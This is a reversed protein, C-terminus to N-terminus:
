QYFCIDGGNAGKAPIALTPEDEDISLLFAVLQARKTADLTFVQAIASQHHGKFLTDDFLEELTRANGAHFYPAGVQMGLLSPPNFGRGNDANGQAVAAMDQRVELVGVAAPSSNFTGVPRLICQIQEAGPPAGFRMRSDTMANAPPVNIPWLAQPFGNLATNWSINSLSTAAMDATAANPIDGPTYFRKSITWKAGSHCGVCNAAAASSFLMRGADVDAQTLNTPKRPSRISRSYAGIEKWDNLASHPHAGAGMPDATDNSSGQLGQQPPVQAATDIRADAADVIAGKGGSVGRTNGEFDAIEDFIATWNFIRQDTPDKSAYSGDLSTSQRPGRAFYWTVNDSLGDIHCAACSGWAEGNLSWRGLGTTFFRKGRLVADEPTGAAPLASAQLIRYDGASGAISQTNLAVATIDRSGENAVFAVANTNGTAVGIPLRIVKDMADTRMDIFKNTASGVSMLQGNGVVLRFAGDAGMSSLYGFNNFFGIDTPLLPMRTSMIDAFRKDLSITGTATGTALDIITLAPHTTAKVDTANPQCKLSVADCVGGVMGCDAAQTLITCAGGANKGAFVGLPGKPSACTSTVYAFTGNITISSVQNPFCGVVGGNHDPFGTDMVPPLDIMSATGDAASIAYVIGKKNTDATMATEPGTRQAFWETVYIKEDTDDANGNNTIALARPHALAPRATVTGLLGSAALTANLDITSKVTMTAADIVSVTGNVWNAVYLTTNNPSLVIGTPESGVSVSAGLKPAATSIGEIVVVKQEKRLAVYARNGCADLAVQWPESTKDAGVTLEAVKTMAPASGSYDVSAITVTGVDRNVSVLHSDDATIAIASGRATGTATKNCLMSGGGGAGGGGGMGATGSSSSSSSSSSSEGGAGATGSSSSSSSGSSSSSSSSSTSTTPEDPGCGGVAVAATGALGAMLMASLITGGYMRGNSRM